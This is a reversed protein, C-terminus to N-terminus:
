LERKELKKVTIECFTACIAFVVLHILVTGAIKGAATTPILPELMGEALIEREFLNYIIGFAVVIVISTIAFVRIENEQGFIDSMMRLYCIFLATICFLTIITAFGTPEKAQAEVGNILSQIKLYIKAKESIIKFIVAIVEGCLTCSVYEIFGARTISSRKIPLIGYLPNFTGKGAIMQVPLFPIIACLVALFSFGANLCLSLLFIVIMGVTVLTLTLPKSVCFDFWIMKQIDKM